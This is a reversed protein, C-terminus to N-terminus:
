GSIMLWFLRLWWSINITFTEDNEVGVYIDNVLPVKIKMAHNVHDAQMALQNSADNRSFFCCNTHVVYREDEFDISAPVGESRPKSIISLRCRGVAITTGASQAALHAECKLLMVSSSRHDLETVKLTTVGLGGLSTSDQLIQSVLTM